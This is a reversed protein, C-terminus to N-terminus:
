KRKLYDEYKRLQELLKKWYALGDLIQNEEAYIIREIIRLYAGDGYKRHLRKAKRKAGM